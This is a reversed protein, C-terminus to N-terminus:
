NVAFYAPYLVHEGVFRWQGIDFKQKVIYEIIGTTILLM